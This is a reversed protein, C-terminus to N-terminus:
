RTVYLSRVERALRAVRRREDETVPVRGGLLVRPSMTLECTNEAPAYRMGTIRLTDDYGGPFRADNVIIRARDGIEVAGDLIRDLSVTVRIDILSGGNAAQDADAHDQLTQSVSVSSYTRVKDLLPYGADILAPDTSSAVPVPGDTVAPEGVAWSTVALEAANEDISISREGAPGGDITISAKLSGLTPYGLRLLGRPKGTVPDWEAGWEYDFGDIVNALNDILEGIVLMDGALYSRDRKRGSVDTEVALRVNGGPESQASAILDRVISLQDDVAATYTKDRRLIRRQFYSGWQAASISLPARSTYPRPWIMGGWHIRDGYVAYIARKGPDTGDLVLEREKLSLGLLQVTGSLDGVGSLTRNFSVGSLPLEHIIDGSIVDAVLYTWRM